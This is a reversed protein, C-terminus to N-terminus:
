SAAWSSRIHPTLDFSAGALLAEQVRPILPRLLLALGIPLALIWGLLPDRWLMRSDAYVLTRFVSVNM